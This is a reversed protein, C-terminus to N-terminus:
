QRCQRVIENHLGQGNPQGVLHRFPELLLPPVAAAGWGVGYALRRSLGRARRSPPAARAPTAYGRRRWIRGRVRAGSGPQATVHARACRTPYERPRTPFEPKLGDGATGNRECAAFQRRSGHWSTAENVTTCQDGQKVRTLCMMLPCSVRESSMGRRPQRTLRDHRLCQKQKSLWLRDRESLQQAPAM